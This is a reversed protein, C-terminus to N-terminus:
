SAYGLAARARAVEDELYLLRVRQTVLGAFLFSFALLSVYLATRMDPAIGGGSRGQFVPAPHQTRFWEISKYVFPVNLCAVIGYIALTKRIRIPDLANARLMLYGIYMLWLVFTSTLRADWTWYVGWDNKAWVPGTLLVLTTFLVGVECAAQAVFDDVARGRILYLAGAIAVIFFGVFGLWACPM